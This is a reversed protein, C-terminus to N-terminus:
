NIWRARRLDDAVPGFARHLVGIVGDRSGDGIKRLPASRRDFIPGGNQEARGIEHFSAAELNVREENEFRALRPDLGVAIKRLGDIEEAEVRELHNFESLRDDGLGHGAFAAHM